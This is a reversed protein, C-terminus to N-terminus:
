AEDVQTPPTWTSRVTSAARRGRAAPRRDAAQPHRPVDVAAGARLGTGPLRAARDSRDRAGRGATGAAGQGGVRLRRPARRGPLVDAQHRPPRPRRAVHPRPRGLDCLRVHRQATRARGRGVARLRAAASRQRLQTAFVHGAAILEARLERYNYIEGNCVVTLRGDPTSIPQHGGALDIISLRRMGIACPGEAMAGSDDPGRHVIVNGMRGMLRIDASTGDRQYIGYIGCM